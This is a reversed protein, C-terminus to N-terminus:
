LIRLLYVDRRRDLIEVGWLVPQNVLSAGIAAFPSGSVPALIYEVGSGKLVGLASRRLDVAPHLLVHPREALRIWKGDPLQGLLEIERQNEDTPSVVTVGTLQAPGGFNVQWYMDPRPPEWAAWKTILNGDAALAAEWVNPWSRLTWNGRNEASPGRFRVEHISWEPANSAALRVRVATFERMEWRSNFESYVGSGNRAGINLAERM